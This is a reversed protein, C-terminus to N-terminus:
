KGDMQNGSTQIYTRVVLPLKHSINGINLANLHKSGVGFQISFPNWRVRKVTM